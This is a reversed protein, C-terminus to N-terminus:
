PAEQIKRENGATRYKKGFKRLGIYYMNARWKAVGNAICHEKFIIDAIMMHYPNLLGERGLQCLADHELSPRMKKKTDRVPGSPGDWAYGKKITLDGNKTLAIFDIDIDDLPKIRIRASYSEVLQYKYGGKYRIM